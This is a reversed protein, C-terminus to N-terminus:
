RYNRYPAQIKFLVEKFCSINLIHLKYKISNIILLYTIWSASFCSFHSQLWIKRFLMKMECYFSVKETFGDEVFSRKTQFCPEFGVLAIIVNKKEPQNNDNGQSANRHQPTAAKWLIDVLAEVLANTQEIQSPKPSRFFINRKVIVIIVCCIDWYLVFHIRHTLIQTNSLMLLTQWDYFLILTLFYFYKEDIIM